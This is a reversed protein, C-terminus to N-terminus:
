GGMKVSVEMFIALNLNLIRVNKLMESSSSTASLNTGAIAQTTHSGERGLRPGDWVVLDKGRCMRM